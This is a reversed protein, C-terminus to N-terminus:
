TISKGPSGTLDNYFHKSIVKGEKIYAKVDVFVDHSNNPISNQSVEIKKETNAAIETIKQAYGNINFVVSDIFNDSQNGAILITDSQSITCSLVIIGIVFFAVIHLTYKM